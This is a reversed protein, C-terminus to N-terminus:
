LKTTTLAARNNRLSPLLMPFQFAGRTAVSGARSVDENRLPNAAMHVIERSVCMTRQRKHQAIKALTNCRM